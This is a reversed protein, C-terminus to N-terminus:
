LYPHRFQPFNKKRENLAKMMEDNETPDYMNDKGFFLQNEHYYFLCWNLSNDFVMVDEGFFILDSYKVLMKWTMMMPDDFGEFLVFVWTKFAIGRHFLWKKLLQHGEPLDYLVPCEEVTKFNGKVFPDWSHGTVLNASPGSFRILYERATKNLFLIQEKHTEPLADFHQANGFFTVGDPRPMTYNRITSLDIM